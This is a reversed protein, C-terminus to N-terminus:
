REQGQAQAGDPGHAQNFKEMLDRFGPNGAHLAWLAAPLTGKDAAAKLPRAWPGLEQPSTRLVRQIAELVDASIMNGSRWVTPAYQRFISRMWSGEGRGEFPITDGPRLPFRENWQGQMAQMMRARDNLSQSQISNQSAERQFASARQRALDVQSQDVVNEMQIEPGGYPAGSPRANAPGFMPERGAPYQAAYAENLQPSPSSTTSWTGQFPRQWNTGPSTLSSAQRVAQAETQPAPTILPESPAPLAARPPAGLLNTTQASPAIPQAEQWYGAQAAALEDQANVMSQNAANANAAYRRSEDFLRQSEDGIVGRRIWSQTKPDWSGFVNRMNRESAWRPGYQNIVDSTQRLNGYEQAVTPNLGQGRQRMAAIRDADTAYNGVQRAFSGIAQQGLGIAGGLQAGKGINNIAEDSTIQDNSVAAFQRPAEMSAGAVVGRTVPSLAEFVPLEGGFTGAGVMGTLEAPNSWGSYEVRREDGSARGGLGRAKIYDAIQNVRKRANDIRAQDGSAVADQLEQRASSISNSQDILEVTEYANTILGAPGALIPALARGITSTASNSDQRYADSGGFTVGREIGEAAARIGEGLTRQSDNRADIVEQSDSMSIQPSASGSENPEARRAYWEMDMPELAASPPSPEGSRIAELDARARRFRALDEQARKSRENGDSPKNQASVAAVRQQLEFQRKELEDAPNAENSM